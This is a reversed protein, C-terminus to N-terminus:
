RGASRSSNGSRFCVAPSGTYALSAEIQDTTLDIGELSTLGQSPERVHAQGESWNHTDTTKTGRLGTRYVIPDM